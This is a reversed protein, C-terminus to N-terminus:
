QLRFNVTLPIRVSRNEGHIMPPYFVWRWAFAEAATRFAPTGGESNVQVPRGTRDLVLVLVLAVAAETRAALAEAPYDPKAPRYAVRLDSFSVEPLAALTEPALSQARARPDQAATDWSRTVELLFPGQEIVTVGPLGDNHKEHATVVLDVIVPQDTTNNLARELFDRLGNQRRVEIRYVSRPLPGAPKAELKLRSRPPIEFSIYPATAANGQITTM